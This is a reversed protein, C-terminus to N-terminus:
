KFCLIKSRYNMIEGFVIDYNFPKKNQTEKLLKNLKKNFAMQKELNRDM